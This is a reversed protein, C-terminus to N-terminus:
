DLGGLFALLKDVFLQEAERHPWHGAGTVILTESGPALVKATQEFYKPAVIDVTGCVLLGRVSPPRVLEKPLTPSLARYYNLAGDLSRPDRYCEKVDALAQERDPGDWNPAWRRYLEDLYAFNGSRTSRAAWPLKLSVFHRAGWLVSPDRPLLSPHPIAIPVIARTREPALAATAYVLSAGWDHGVLVANQEGLADLLAISDKGLTRADYGRGAVITDPHYGRLWPVVTRYGAAAVKSAAPLWGHPTDPFGHWMVVLPGEGIDAYVFTQGDASTARSWIDSM